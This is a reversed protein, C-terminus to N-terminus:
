SYHLKPRHKRHAFPNSAVAPVDHGGVRRCRMTARSLLNKATRDPEADLTLRLGDLLSVAARWDLLEGARRPDGISVQVDGPRAPAFIFEPVRAATTGVAHALELVKTGRGTCVNVVPAQVDAHDGALMLAQVADSVYVFDRIQNGEGFITLPTSLRVCDTFKAVVGSYPSLADQRPGYVNFFRL